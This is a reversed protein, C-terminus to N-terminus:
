KRKVCLRAITTFLDDRVRWEFEQVEGYDVALVLPAISERFDLLKLRQDLGDRNLLAPRQCFYAMVQPRRVRGWRQLSRLVESETGTAGSATPTGFRNWFIVLVVDAADIEPDILAQPEGVAPPADAEWRWLEVAVNLLNGLTKNLSEVVKPMRSREEHVDGPSAVFVRFTRKFKVGPTTKFKAGKANGDGGGKKRAPTTGAETTKLEARTRVRMGLGTLGESLLARFEELSGARRVLEKEGVRRVFAELRADAAETSSADATEARGAGSTFILRLIGRLSAREYEIEMLSRDRGPIAPGYSDGIIGVYVDAEDLLGLAAEVAADDGGAPYEVMVPVIGLRLCVDLAGRLHKPMERASSSIVAVRRKISQSM